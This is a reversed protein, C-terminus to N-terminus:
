PLSHGCESWQARLRHIRKASAEQGRGWAWADPHETINVLGPSSGWTTTCWRARPLNGPPLPPAKWEPLQRFRSPEPRTELRFSQTEPALIEDKGESRGSPGPRTSEEWSGSHAVETPPSLDRGGGRPRGRVEPWSSVVTARVKDGGTRRRTQTQAM